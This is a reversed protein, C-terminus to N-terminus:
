PTFSEIHSKYSPTSGFGKSQGPLENERTETLRFMSIQIATPTFLQLRSM